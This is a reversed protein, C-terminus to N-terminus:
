NDRYEGMSVYVAGPHDMTVYYPEEPEMTISTKSPLPHNMAPSPLLTAMTTEDPAQCEIGQPQSPLEFVGFSGTGVGTTNFPYFLTEIEMSLVPKKEFSYEPPETPGRHHPPPQDTQDPKLDSPKVVKHNINCKVMQLPSLQHDLPHKQLKSVMGNKSTDHEVPATAPSELSSCLLGQQGALSTGGDPHVSKTSSPTQTADQTAPVVLCIKHDNSQPVGIQPAEWRLNEASICDSQTLTIQPNQSQTRFWLRPKQTTKINRPTGTHQIPQSSSDPSIVKRSEEVCSKEHEIDKLFTSEKRIGNDFHGRKSEETPLLISQSLLHETSFTKRTISFPTKRNPQMQDYTPNKSTVSATQFFHKNQSHDILKKPIRLKSQSAPGDRMSYMEGEVANVAKIGESESFTGRRAAVGGSLIEIAQPERNSRSTQITAVDEKGVPCRPIPKEIKESKRLGLKAQLLCANQSMVKPRHSESHHTVLHNWSQRPLMDRSFSTSVCSRLDSRTFDLLADQDLIDHKETKLSWQKNLEPQSKVNSIPISKARREKAVPSTQKAGKNDFPMTQCLSTPPSLRPM